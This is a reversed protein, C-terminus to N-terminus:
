EKTTKNQTEFIDEWESILECPALEAQEARAKHMKRIKVKQALKARAEALVKEGIDLGLMRLEIIACIEDTGYWKAYGKIMNKGRYTKIWHAASQLRAQRSMRKRRPTNNKSPKKRKM